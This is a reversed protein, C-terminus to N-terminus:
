KNIEVEKLLDAKIMDCERYLDAVHESFKSIIQDARRDLERDTKQQLLDIERFLTDNVNVQQIYLDNVQNDINKELDAIKGELSKNVQVIAFAIGCILITVLVTIITEM